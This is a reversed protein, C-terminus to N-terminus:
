ANHIRAGEERNFDYAVIGALLTRLAAQRPLALPAVTAFVLRIERLGDAQVELEALGSEFVEDLLAFSAEADQVNGFHL